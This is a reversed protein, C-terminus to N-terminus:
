RYDKDSILFARVLQKENQQEIKQNDLGNNYLLMIAENNFKYMKFQSYQNLQKITKRRDVKYRGDVDEKIVVIQNPPM